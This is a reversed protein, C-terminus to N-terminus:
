KNKYIIICQVVLAFGMAFYIFNKSFHIKFSDLMLTAGILILICLALVKISPHHHIFNTIYGSVFLMILVTIIIAISALSIIHQSNTTIDQLMGVATIVSDLSFIIDLIGIQIVSLWFNTSNKTDLTSYEQTKFSLEKLEVVSKYILFAGGCFLFLDKGSFSFNAFHVLPSTLTIIWAISFLLAIRMFMALILGLIRAQDRKKQSLKSTAIAIFVLNDIGLVVELAILICLIGWASPDYIWAFM